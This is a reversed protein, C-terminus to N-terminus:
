VGAREGLMRKLGADPRGQVSPRTPPKRQEGLNVGKQPLQGMGQGSEGLSLTEQGTDQWCTLGTAVQKKGLLGLVLGRSDTLLTWGSLPLVAGMSLPCAM